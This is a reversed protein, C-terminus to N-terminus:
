LCFHTKPLSAGFKLDKQVKKEQYPLVFDNEQMTEDESEHVCVTHM